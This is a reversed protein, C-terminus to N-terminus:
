PPKPIKKKFYGLLNFFIEWLPPAKVGMVGGLIRGQRASSNASESVYPKIGWIGSQEFV